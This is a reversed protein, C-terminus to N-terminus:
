FLKLRLNMSLFSGRLQSPSAVWDNGHLLPLRLGVGVGADLWPLLALAIQTDVQSLMVFSSVSADDDDLSRSKVGGLQLGAGVRWSWAGGRWLVAEADAGILNLRVQGLGEFADPPPNPIRDWNPDQIVSTSLREYSLGFGVREDLTLGLRGSLLWSSTGRVDALRSGVSINSGVIAEEGLFDMTMPEEGFNGFREFLNPTNTRWASLSRSLNGVEDEGASSTSADESRSALAPSTKAQEPVFSTTDIERHTPALYPMGNIESPPAPSPQPALTDRANSAAPRAPQESPLNNNMSIFWAVRVIAQQIEEPSPSPALALEIVGQTDRFLLKCGSEPRWSWDLARAVVPDKEVGSEGLLEIKMTEPLRLALEDLLMTSSEESACELATYVLLRDLDFTPSITPSSLKFLGEPDTKSDPDDRKVSSAAVEKGAAASRPIPPMKQKEQAHLTGASCAIVLLVSVLAVIARVGRGGENGASVESM